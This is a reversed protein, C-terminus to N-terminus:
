ATHQESVKSQRVPLTVRFHAGPRDEQVLEITGNHALVFDKIIALGLGTGKVHGHQPASGQYFADFVRSADAQAIGPGDDMVDILAAGGDRGLTIAIKGRHPSFKIANSLLNDVIVRVKEADVYPRVDPGRLTLEIDKAQLALKHEAVVRLIIDKLEVRQLQLSGKNRRAADAASYNLLNEIMKQLQVSKHQLIGTIERQQPSLQGGVEDALLESGERLAALPTKLEHSVHQLFNKRQEELDLLRSRLWDLRRGLDVLDQPGTVSFPESLEGKGMRRIAANIQSFPRTIVVTFVVAFLVALPILALMEWLVTRRAEAASAHMADVERAILRYSQLYVSQGLDGLPVFEAIAAKIGQPPQPGGSLSRFLALERSILEDIHRKQEADIAHGALQKATRQFEEHIRQYGGLLTVDELILYQRVIREMETIRERLIRSNQTLQVADYVAKESRNVLRELYVATSYLAFILPLAVLLIETLILKFLSKPYYAMHAELHAAQGPADATRDTEPQNIRDPADPRTAEARDAPHAARVGAKRRPGPIRV